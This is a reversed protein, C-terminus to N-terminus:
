KETTRCLDQVCMGKFLLKAMKLGGLENKDIVRVSQETLLKFM